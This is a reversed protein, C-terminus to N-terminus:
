NIRWLFFPLPSIRRPRGCMLAIMRCMCPPTSRSWARMPKSRVSMNRPSSRRAMPSDKSVIGPTEVVKRGIALMEESSVNANPGFDWEIPLLDLATKARYWSDAVVAVANQMDPQDQKGPVAKLEIAAIVGPRNKIAEFNFSKLGGWPV